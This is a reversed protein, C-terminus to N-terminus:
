LAYGWRSLSLGTLKAFRRMEPAFKSRLEAILEDSLDPGRMDNANIVGTTLDQWPLPKVGVFQQLNAVFPQPESIADEFLYFAIRDRGIANIWAEAHAGYNGRALYDFPRAYSREPPLPSPRDNEIAIADAFPLTELGNRTSWLWNSYARRVPDRLIFIIRTNPLLRAFRERAEANELYYSTKEVRISEDPATAFWDDYRGLIGVDGMEHPTMLVKPEPIFPQAVFIQPHKSLLECLYTTGARPAGGIVVDPLNSRTNTM